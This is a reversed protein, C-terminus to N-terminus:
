YTSIQEGRLEYNDSLSHIAQFYKIFSEISACKCKLTSFIVGNPSVNSMQKGKSQAEREEGGKDRPQLNSQAKM